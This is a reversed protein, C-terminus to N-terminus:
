PVDVMGGCIAGIDILADRLRREAISSDYVDADVGYEAYVQHVVRPCAVVTATPTPPSPVERRSVEFVLSLRHHVSFHMQRVYRVDRLRTRCGTFTDYSSVDRRWHTCLLRHLTPDVIGIGDTPGVCAVLRDVTVKAPNIMVSRKPAGSSTCAAAGHASNLAHNEFVGGMDDYYAKFSRSNGCCHMRSAAARRLMADFADKGLDCDYIRVRDKEVGVVGSGLVHVRVQTVDARRPHIM